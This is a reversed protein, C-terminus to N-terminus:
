SLSEKLVPRYEVVAPLAVCYFIATMKCFTAYRSHNLAYFLLFFVTAVTIHQGKM